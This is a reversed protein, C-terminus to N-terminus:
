LGGPANLFMWTSYFVVPISFVFQTWNWYKIDMVEFLPNEPLMELMAIIFIPLTFAVAIWLKKLLEKYKKQEASEDAEKPVLDMGCIPCSGSGEQEIEPHMPCTYINSSGSNMNQEEVLDMGCVPCDGPEDYTKDGECHMPCYFVGTGKESSSKKESKHDHHHHHSHNHFGPMNISYKGSLEDLVEQFQKIEVHESMEIEATHEELSVSVSTVKELGSLAETVHNKCGNCSMGKIQYTHKM